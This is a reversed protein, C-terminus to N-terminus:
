HAGVRALVEDAYRHTKPGWLHRNPGGHYYHLADRVNGTRALGENFYARGLALQYKRAAEDTGNVLDPHWPLGLKAAM